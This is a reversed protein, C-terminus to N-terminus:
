LKVARFEYKGAYTTNHALAYGECFDASGVVGWATWTDAEARRAQVKHTAKFRDDM